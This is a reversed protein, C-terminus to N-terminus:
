MQLSVCTTLQLAATAPGELPHAVSFFGHLCDRPFISIKFHQAITGRSGAMDMLVHYPLIVGDKERERERAREREREKKGRPMLPTRLGGAVLAGGINM